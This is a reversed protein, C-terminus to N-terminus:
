GLLALLSLCIRYKTFKKHVLKITIGRNVNAVSMPKINRLLIEMIFAASVKIM